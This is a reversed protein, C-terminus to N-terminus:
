KELVAVSTIPQAPPKAGLSGRFGDRTGSFDFIGGDEGVMLYGSGARVMGTVPRNLKAGGMSGKFEAEFAFIGGDSAVLWYGVGDSDPVLSQVPANLPQGGMSGYFYANGFAFIGGDSAVMYYGNGSPTVISDLVPGNLALNSVDGLFPANGFTLVRGRNTFIWYGGGDRTTSLSTIKEGPVLAARDVNGRHVADGFTSVRGLDDVIWYGNGSPTPELDVATATGVAANGLAKADGFAYVAGTSGVMWYGFRAPGTITVVLPASTSAGAFNDGSYVATVSQSGAPLSSTTLIAQQGGSGPGLAAAGLIADGNRFTVTGTPAGTGPARVAVSATLTVPQGTAATTASAALGTVTEDRDVTQVLEPSTSANSAGDGRYEATLRHAGVPLSAVQLTAQQSGAPGDLAATGLTTTGDRFVVAATLNAASRLGATLTVAQGAASPNHDSRL